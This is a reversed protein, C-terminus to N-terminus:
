SPPMFYDMLSLFYDIIRLTPETKFGLKTRSLQLDGNAMVLHTSAFFEEEGSFRTYPYSTM